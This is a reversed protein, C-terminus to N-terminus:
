QRKLLSPVLHKFLFLIRKLDFVFTSQFGCKILKRETFNFRYGRFNSIVLAIHLDIKAGGACLALSEKANLVGACKAHDARVVNIISNNPLCIEVRRQLM